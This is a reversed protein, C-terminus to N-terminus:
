PPLPVTAPSLPTPLTGIGVLPRVSHYEKYILVKHPPPPREVMLKDIKSFLWNFNKEREMERDSYGRKAAQIEDKM